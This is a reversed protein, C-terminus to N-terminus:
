RKGRRPRTPRQKMSRQRTAPAVKQKQRTRISPSKSSSRKRVRRVKPKMRLRRSTRDGARELDAELESVRQRLTGLERLLQRERADSERGRALADRAIAEHRASQARLEGYALSEQQLQDRLSTLQDRLSQAEATRVAVDRSTPTNKLELVGAALARQWLEQTLDAVQLPLPLSRTPSHSVASTLTPLITDRWHKLAPTLDNPSGGGLVGRVRTVTPRLGQAHLANAAEDVRHQLAAARTRFPTDLTEPSSPAVSSEKM